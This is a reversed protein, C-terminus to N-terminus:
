IFISSNSFEGLLYSMNLKSSKRLYNVMILMILPTIQTRFWENNMSLMMQCALFAPIDIELVHAFNGKGGEVSWLCNLIGCSSTVIGCMHQVM